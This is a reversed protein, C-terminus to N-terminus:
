LSRFHLHLLRPPVFVVHWPLALREAGFATFFAAPVCAGSATLGTEFHKNGGSKVIINWLAHLFAAFLIALLIFPSM